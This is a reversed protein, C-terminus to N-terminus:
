GSNHTEMRAIAYDLIARAGASLTKHNSYAAYLGDGRALYQPLIRIVKRIALNVCHESILAIGFGQEAASILGSTSNTSFRTNIQVPLCIEGNPLLINISTDDSRHICQHNKLDDPRHPTGHASLYDSSAYFGLPMSCLKRIVYNTRRPRGVMLLLNINEQDLDPEHDSVLVELELEPYSKLLEFFFNNTPCEFFGTPVQIRVKGGVGHSASQISEIAASLSDINTSSWKYLREGDPTCFLSRTSRLFLSTGLRSELGSLRRSLTNAPMGLQKSARSFNGARVIQVFLAIDNLMLNVCRINM